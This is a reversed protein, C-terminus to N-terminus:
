FLLRTLDGYTEPRRDRVWYNQRRRVETVFDLDVQALVLDDTASQSMKVVNGLPDVVHSKGIFTMEGETGVRNVGAFFLQNLAAGSQSAIMMPDTESCIATPVVVLEAGHLMLLRIHEPFFQDQCIAVGVRAGAVHFVPYESNGPKYYFKENYLPEEAIHMMRQVGVLEGAKGIVAASDYYVGDMACEYISVVVAIGRAAAVEQLARCTAGGPISEAQEFWSSDARFQPFFRTMGIEPFAILDAGQDAAEAVLEAAKRITQQKTQEAAMQGLAISFPRTV